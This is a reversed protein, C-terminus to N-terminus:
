KKRLPPPPPQPSPPNRQPPPPPPAPNPDPRYSRRGGGIDDRRIPLDRKPQELM